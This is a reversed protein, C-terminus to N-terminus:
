QGLLAMLAGNAVVVLLFAAALTPSGVATLAAAAGGFLLVQLGIWAAIPLEVTAKPSIFLGWVVAILLPGGIGLLAQMGAGDGTEFGWYGVAGLLCLELLFRVLLNLSRILFIAHRGKALM